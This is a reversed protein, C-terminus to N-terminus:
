VYFIFPVDSGSCSVVFEPYFIKGSAMGVIVSRGLYEVKVIKDNEPDITMERPVVKLLASVLDRHRGLVLHCMSFRM